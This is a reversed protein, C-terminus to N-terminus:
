FSELREYANYSEVTLFLKRILHFQSFKFAVLNIAHIKLTFFLYLQAGLHEYSLLRAAHTFLQLSTFSDTKRSYAIVQKVAPSSLDMTAPQTSNGAESSSLLPGYYSM